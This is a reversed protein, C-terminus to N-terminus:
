EHRNEQKYFTNTLAFYAGLIIGFPASLRALHFPFQTTAVLAYVCLCAFLALIEPSKDSRHFRLYVEKFFFFLLIIFGIGYEFLGQLYDNHAETWKNIGTPIKGKFRAEWKGADASHYRMIETTENPKESFIPNYEKDTLFIFNKDKSYNRFSDPGWGLLNHSSKKLIMHWSEFRSAYTLKDGSFDKFSYLSMLCAM